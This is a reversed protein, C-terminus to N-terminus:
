FYIFIFRFSFIFYFIFNFYLKKQSFRYIIINDKLTITKIHDRNYLGDRLGVFLIFININLIIFFNLINILRKLSNYLSVGKSLGFSRTFRHKGKCHLWFIVHLFPFVQFIYKSWTCKNRIGQKNTLILQLNNISKMPVKFYIMRWQNVGYFYVNSMVYVYFPVHPVLPLSYFCVCNKTPCGWPFHGSPLFLSLHYPMTYSIPQNTSQSLKTCYLFGPHATTFATTFWLFM